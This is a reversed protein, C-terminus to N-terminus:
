EDNGTSHERRIHAGIDEWHGLRGHRVEARGNVARYERKDWLYWWVMYSAVIVVWVAIFVLVMTITM